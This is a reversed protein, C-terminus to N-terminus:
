STLAGRGSRGFRERGTKGMQKRLASVKLIYIINLFLGDKATENINGM